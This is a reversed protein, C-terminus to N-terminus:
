GVGLMVRIILELPNLMYIMLLVDLTLVIWDMLIGM